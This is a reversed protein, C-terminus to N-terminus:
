GRRKEMIEAYVGFLLVCVFAPLVWEFGYFGLPLAHLMKVTGDLFNHGNLVSALNLSELISVSGAGVVGGVYVADHRIFRDFLALIVLVMIIPYIASLVPVSFSIITNVGVLSLVYSVVCCVTVIKGYGMRGSSATVFYDGCTTALGVSTTLCALAVALGLCTKGLPGLLLRAMGILIETRASEASFHAAVTAGSYTMSGYVLALLVFAVVGIKISVRLQKKKDTYGRRILDTVMVGAFMPAALADMTQYGERIGLSFMDRAPTVKLAPPMHMVSGTFLAALILLLVPTMFRGIIDVVKTPNLAVYLTLAFFVAEGLWIPCAPFLPRIFIEFTTAGTRPIAFLPGITLILLTNVVNAFRPGVRRCLDSAKGGLAATVIVALIPLVPDMLLFSCTSVHWRSGSIVGLYPPFILNGAGFFIAFLALGCVWVDKREQNM